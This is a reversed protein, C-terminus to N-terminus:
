KDKIEEYDVYEGEDDHIIRNNNEQKPQQAQRNNQTQRRNDPTSNFLVNYIARIRKYLFYAIFGVIIAGFLGM